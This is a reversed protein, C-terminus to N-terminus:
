AAHPEGSQQQVARPEPVPQSAIWRAFAEPNAIFAERRRLNEKVTAADHGHLLWGRERLTRHAEVRAVAHPSGSYAGLVSRRSHGVAETVLRHALEDKAADPHVGDGGRVVPDVGLEILRRCVYGARLGHGTVGASTKTYGIAAMVYAYRKIAQILTLGEPALSMAEHAGRATQLNRLQVFLILREAIRHLRHNDIPILRPRGGKAGVRIRIVGEQLDIDRSPRLRIAERRRLGFAEQAALAMAVWPEAEWAREFADEFSVDNGEWSKDRDAVLERAVANADLEADFAVVLEPKDAWRFLHRVTTAYGALTAPQRKGDQYLANIWKAWAIAHRPNFNKPKVIKLGLEFRLAQLLIFTTELTYEQTRYSTRGGAGERKVGSHEKVLKHFHWRWSVQVRRMKPPEGPAPTGPVPVFKSKSM